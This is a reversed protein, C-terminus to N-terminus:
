EGNRLIRRLLMAQAAVHSEAAITSTKRPRKWCEPQVGRATLAYWTVIRGTARENRACWACLQSTHPDADIIARRHHTHTQKILTYVAEDSNQKTYLQYIPNTTTAVFPSRGPCWKRRGCCRSRVVHQVAGRAAWHSPQPRKGRTPSNVCPEIVSPQGNIPPSDGVTTAVSVGLRRPSDPSQAASGHCPSSLCM